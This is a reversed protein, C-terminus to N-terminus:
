IIVEIYEKKIKKNPADIPENKFAQAMLSELSDIKAGDLHLCHLLFNANKSSIGSKEQTM